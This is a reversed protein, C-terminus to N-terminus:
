KLRVAIADLLDQEIAVGLGEAIKIHKWALEYNKLNYFAFALANHADGMEPDIEVARLYEAVAREYDKKASYAGGLNYRIGGDAPKIKIAKKYQKIAVDYKKKGFYANGLNVLAAPIDPKIALAKEYAGIEEDAMGLKNYCVALGCHAEVLDPKMRLAKEFQRIAGEYDGKQSHVDGLQSFLSADKPAFEMAQKLQAAAAAYMELKCYTVASNKYANIYKPDLKISLLYESIADNLWGRESYANGLNSHIKADDPNIDLAAQYQYIADEVRGQQLYGNGLNTRSAALLPNIQVAKELAAVSSEVDGIDSYCNGLNNLFCGLAQIKTLSIMYISNEYNEPVNFKKIYHEDSARAGKSTTEINFRVRGDDYRVFFHGPVVVGYLPVGLREALGLYLISLSLCYGRKRDLVRHLFLDKPDKAQQIPKFGLEEFLYRNIVAIAKHNPRLKKEELRARIELAMDDLALLYRRGNVNRNWQQSIIIAATALDVEEDALRLVQDLSKAYLGSIGENALPTNQYSIVTPALVLVCIITLLM